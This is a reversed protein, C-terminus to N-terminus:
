DKNKTDAIISIALFARLLLAVSCATWFGMAPVSKDWSHLIGLLLMLVVGGIFYYLALAIAGVTVATFFKGM